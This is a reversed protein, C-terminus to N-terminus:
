AIKEETINNIDEEKILMRAAELGYKKILILLKKTIPEVRYLGSDITNFLLLTGNEQVSVHDGVSSVEM